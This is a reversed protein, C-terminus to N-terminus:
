LHDLQYKVEPFIAVITADFIHLVLNMNPRRFQVVDIIRRAGERANRRGVMGALVRPLYWLIQRRARKESSEKEELTRKRFGQFNMVLGPVKKSMPWLTNRLNGILGSLLEDRLISGVMDRIRREVTGGVIHRLLISIAQRRLWNRRNKLGFIEIFLDSLPDIFGASSGDVAVAAAAAAAAASSVPSVASTSAMDVAATQQMAVQAGLEQVIIELMSDAGTIGEIDEGVTKYIQAMWGSSASAVVSAVAKGSTDAVGDDVGKNAYVALAPPPPPPLSSLFLRVPRANCVARERLLGQIYKELGQRRHEIDRDRQLRILPTRAPLEHSRMENPYIGKLERHLAYFERYRRAVVWGTPAYLGQGAVLHEAPMSQQLEILYVVHPKADAAEGAHQHGTSASGSGSDGQDGGTTTIARPIHVLTRTPSLVHDELCSEYQRQQEAGAHVERRLGRYSARLVRQEHPKHRSKAQRMLARVIAMQHSKRELSRALQVMREDLFLDGPVPTKIVRAIMLTEAEDASSDGTSRADDSSSLEGDLNEQDIRSPLEQSDGAADDTSEKPGASAPAFASDIHEMQVSDELEPLAELIPSQPIDAAAPSSMARDLSGAETLAISRLSASLRRIESKGVRISRRPSHKQELANPKSDTDARSSSQSRSRMRSLSLGRSKRRRRPSDATESAAAAAATREPESEQASLQIRDTIPVSSDTAVSAPTEAGSIKSLQPLAVTASTEAAASAPADEETLPALATPSFLTSSIQEQRPTVYYAKLFRSYFSSRLFPPYESVEMHKFVLTQVLCILEFVELCIERTLRKTDLELSGPMRHPKLCRQVRSIAVDVEGGLAALEDVRLTFYNKWLSSVISPLIEASPSSQRIGEVNVWFELILQHGILDMYEAFASLSSVNTLIEHLTFSPPGLKTPDDRFEYYTSARSASTAARRVPAGLGPTRSVRPQVAGGGASAASAWQPAPLETGENAINAGAGAMSPSGLPTQQTQQDLQSGFPAILASDSNGRRRGVATSGKMAQDSRLLELRREAKKKAVYLRNIYVIIDRVREGHVIDDKNQGMILIRRKRIQALIDEHIRGLEAIDSCTEISTIFQEYTMVSPRKSGEGQVPLENEAGWSGALRGSSWSASLADLANTSSNGAMRPVAEDEHQVGENYGSSSEDMAVDDAAQKDLAERLENVMHQERILKELQGDLLQNITDPEALSLIVPTLLAGCLLERVLVRHPAFSSQEPPLILPVLLDVVRRVHAMVLKKETEKAREEESEDGTVVIDEKRLQLLAPHWKATKAYTQLLREQVAAANRADGLADAAGTSKDDIPAPSLTGLAEAECERMVKLHTTVLPMAQGVVFEALDVSNCARDAATDVSQVIQTLVCRPFSPDASINRFWAQVFDRVVLELVRSLESELRSYGQPFGVHPQTWTEANYETPYLSTSTGKPLTNAANAAFALPQIRPVPPDLARFSPKQTGSIQQQLLAERRRQFWYSTLINVALLTVVLASLLIPLLLAYGLMVRVAEVVTYM